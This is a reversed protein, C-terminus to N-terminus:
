INLHVFIQLIFCIRRFVIHIIHKRNLQPKAYQGAMFIMEILVQEGKADKNRKKM